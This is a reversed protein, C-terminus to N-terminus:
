SRHRPSSGSSVVFSDEFALAAGRSVVHIPGVRCSPCRELQLTCAEQSLLACVADATRLSRQRLKFAPGVCCVCHGCQYRAARLEAMCVVCERGEECGAGVAAAIGPRTNSADALEELTALAESLPMRSRASRRWSLGVVLKTLAVSTAQPWEATTDLCSQGPPQRTLLAPDELASEARDMAELAPRGVLCTLLTVGMAYGDTHQSYQGSNAYLPDVYGATGIMSSSSVHTRGSSLEHSETALEVDALKANLLGDLLINAGKVDRHLVVGKTATPTHLYVLARTADRVVRLRERWTLAPRDASTAGADRAEASRHLRDDLNGGTM